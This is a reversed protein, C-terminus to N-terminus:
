GRCAQEITTAAAVIRTVVAQDTMAHVAGPFDGGKAPAEARGFDRAFAHLAKVLRRNAPALPAPVVGADMLKASRELQQHETAIRTSLDHKDVSQAILESSSSLALTVRQLRAYLGTCAPQDAAAIAIPTATAAPSPAPAPTRAPPAPKAASGCGSLLAVAALAAARRM